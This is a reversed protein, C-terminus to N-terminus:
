NWINNDINIQPSNNNVKEVEINIDTVSKNGLKDFAEIKIYNDGFNPCNTALTIHYPSTKTSLDVSTPSSAKNYIVIRQVDGAWQLTYPIRYPNYGEFSGFSVNWSGSVKPHKTVDITFGRKPFNLETYSEDYNNSYLGFSPAISDISIVGLPVVQSSWDNNIGVLFFCQAGWANNLRFCSLPADLSKKEDTMNRAIMEEIFYDLDSDDDCAFLFYNDAVMDSTVKYPANKLSLSQISPIDGKVVFKSNTTVSLERLYLRMANFLTDGINVKKNKYVWRRLESDIHESDFTNVIKAFKGSTIEGKHEWIERYKFQCQLTTDLKSPISIHVDMLGGNQALIYALEYHSSKKLKISDMLNFEEGGRISTSFSALQGVSINVNHTQTSDADVVLVSGGIKAAVKPSKAVNGNCGSMVLICALCLISLNILKKM